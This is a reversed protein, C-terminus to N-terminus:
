IDFTLNLPKKCKAPLNDYYDRLRSSNGLDAYVLEITSGYKTIENKDPTQNSSYIIRDPLVARKDYKSYSKCINEKINSTKPLGCASGYMKCSLYNYNDNYYAIGDISSLCIDQTNTAKDLKTGVMFTSYWNINFTGSSCILGLFRLASNETRLNDESKVTMVGIFSIICILVLKLDSRIAM